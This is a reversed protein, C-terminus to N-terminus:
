LPKSASVCGVSLVRYWRREIPHFLRVPWPRWPMLERRHRWCRSLVRPLDWLVTVTWGHVTVTSSRLPRM